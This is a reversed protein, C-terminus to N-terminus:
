LRAAVAGVCWYTDNRGESTSIQDARQFANNIRKVVKPVSDVPYLSLDPYTTMASNADAAVQWGSLYIAKLGAQVQQVAQNGTLAGLAPIFPESHLLKWLREAGLKGLTYEIKISGRLKEVDQKTYVRTVGEWRASDSSPAAMTHQKRRTSTPPNSPIPAPANHHPVREARCKYPRPISCYYALEPSDRHSVAAMCDCWEM